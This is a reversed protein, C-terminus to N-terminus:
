PHPSEHWRGFHGSKVMERSAEAKTYAVEIEAATWAYFAETEYIRGTIPEWVRPGVESEWEVWAHGIRRPAGPGHWSGHVLMAGAPASGMVVARGALEYCRSIRAEFEPEQACFWVRGVPRPESRIM